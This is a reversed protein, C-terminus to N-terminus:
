SQPEVDTGEDSQAEHEKRGTFLRVIRRGLWALGALIPALALTYVISGTGPDIYAHAAPTLACCLSVALAIRHWRPTRLM